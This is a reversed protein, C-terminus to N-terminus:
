NMVQNAGVMKEIEDAALAVNTAQFGMTRYSAMLAAFDVGKDFEYSCKLIFVCFVFLHSAQIANLHPGSSFVLLFAPKARKVKTGNQSM